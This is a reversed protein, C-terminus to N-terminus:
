IVKKMGRGASTESGGSLSVTQGEPAFEYHVIGRHDPSPPPSWPASRESVLAGARNEQPLAFCSEEVILTNNPKLMVIM